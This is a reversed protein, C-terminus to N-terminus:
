GFTKKSGNKRMDKTIFSVVDSVIDSRFKELDKATIQGAGNFNIDGMTCTISQDNNTTGEFSTPISFGSADFKDYNAAIDYLRATMEAPIVGDGRSLPTLLGYKTSLIEAGQEQTLYFDDKSIFRDGSAKKKLRFQQGSTGNSHWSRINVRKKMENNAIDLMKGSAINKFSYTGNSNKIIKWKQANSENPRFQQVNAGEASSGKAVDLAMGSNANRITYTGDNNPLFQFEQAKTNNSKFLQVNAGSAKSGHAIDVVFNNDKAARITYTGAYPNTTAKDVASQEGAAQAASSEISSVASTASAATSAASSGASSASSATSNAASSSASAGSSPINTANANPSTVGLLSSYIDAFSVGMDALMTTLTNVAGTIDGGSTEIATTIAESMNAMSNSIHNVYEEYDEQLQDKLDDLGQVQLDYM